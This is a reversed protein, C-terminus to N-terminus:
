KRPFWPSGYKKHILQYFFLSLTSIGAIFYTGRSIVTVFITGMSFIRGPIENRVNIELPLYAFWLKKLILQYFFLRGHSTREIFYTGRPEGPL